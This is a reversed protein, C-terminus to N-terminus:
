EVEHRRKDKLYLLFNFILMLVAFIILYTGVNLTLDFRAGNFVFIMYDSIKLFNSGFILPVFILFIADYIIILAIALLFRQHNNNIDGSEVLIDIGFIVLFYLGFINAIHLVDVLNFTKLFYCAVFTIILASIFNIILVRSFHSDFM